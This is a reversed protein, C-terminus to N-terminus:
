IDGMNTINDVVKRKTGSESCLNFNGEQTLTDNINLNKIKDFNICLHCVGILSKKYLDLVHFDYIINSNHSEVKHNICNKEPLDSFKIKSILNNNYNILCIFKEYPISKWKPFYDKLTIRIALSLKM